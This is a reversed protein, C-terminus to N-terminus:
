NYPGKWPEDTIPDEKPYETGSLSYEKPDKTIADVKYKQIRPDQRPGENMKENMM